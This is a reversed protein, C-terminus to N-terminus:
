FGTYRWLGWRSILINGYENEKKMPLQLCWSAENRCIICWGAVGSFLYDRVFWLAMITGLLIILLQLDGLIEGENLKRGNERTWPGYAQGKLLGISLVDSNPTLFTKNLLFTGIFIPDRIRFSMKLSCLTWVEKIGLSSFISSATKTFVWTRLLIGRIILIDLASNILSFDVLVVCVQVFHFRLSEM